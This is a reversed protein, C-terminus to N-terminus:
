SCITMFEEVSYFLDTIVNSFISVFMKSSLLYNIIIKKFKIISKLSKIENSLKNYILMSNYAIIQKFLKTNHRTIFLYSKSWIFSVSHTKCRSLFMENFQLNEYIYTGPLTMIKLKKFYPKCRTTIATNVILRIARKQLKFNKLTQLTEGFYLLM